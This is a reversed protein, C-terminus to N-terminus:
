LAPGDDDRGLRRISELGRLGDSRWAALERALPDDIEGLKQVSSIVKAHAGVLRDSVDRTPLHEALAADAMHKESVTQSDARKAARESSGFQIYLVAAVAVAMGTALALPWRARHESQMPLPAELRAARLSGELHTLQKRFASCAECRELHVNVRKSPSAGEANSLQWRVRMCMM